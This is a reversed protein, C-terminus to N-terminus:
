TITPEMYLIFCALVSLAVKFFLVSVVISDDETWKYANCVQQM